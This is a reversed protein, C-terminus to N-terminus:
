DPVLSAVLKSQGSCAEACCEGLAGAYAKSPDEQGLIASLKEWSLGCTSSRTCSALATLVNCELLHGDEYGAVLRWAKPLFAVASLDKERGWTMVPLGTLVERVEIGGKSRGVAVFRQDESIAMEVVYERGSGWRAYPAGFSDVVVIEGTICGIALDDRLFTM